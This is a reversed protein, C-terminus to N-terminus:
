FFLFLINNQKTRKKGGKKRYEDNQNKKDGYKPKNTYTTNM